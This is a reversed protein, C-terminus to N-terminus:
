RIELKALQWVSRGFIEETRLAPDSDYPYIIFLPGKDRVPMYEGDVKLALIVGLETFDSMPITVSYDNLATAVVVEGHAGLRDFLAAASVGEFTVVGDHWPTSTTVQIMGLSELGAVDFVATSGDNTNDISGSVTLVPKGTPEPLASDAWASVPGLLLAVAAIFWAKGNKRQITM